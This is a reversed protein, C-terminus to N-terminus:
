AQEKRRGVPKMDNPWVVGHRTLDEVILRRIYASIGERGRHQTVAEDQSATFQVVRQVLKQM